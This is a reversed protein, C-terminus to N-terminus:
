ESFHFSSAFSFRHKIEWRIGNPNRGCPSDLREEFSAQKLAFGLCITSEKRRGNREGKIVQCLPHKQNM